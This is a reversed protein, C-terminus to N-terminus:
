TSAEALAKFTRLQKRMMVLDGWALAEARLPAIVRPPPHHVLLKV